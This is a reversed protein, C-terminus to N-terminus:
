RSPVAPGIPLDSARDGAQVLVVLVVLEFDPLIRRLEKIERARPVRRVMGDGHNSRGTLRAATAQQDPGEPLKPKRGLSARIARRHPLAGDVLHLSVPQFPWIRPHIRLLARNECNTDLCSKERYPAEGM